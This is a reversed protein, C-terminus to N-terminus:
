ARLAVVQDVMAATALTAAPTVKDPVPRGDQLAAYIEDLMNVLGHYPTHQAVKNRFGRVGSRMMSAGSRILELPALKGGGAGGSIRLFPNFLETEASARSGRVVLSFAPPNIGPLLKLRGRVPGATVLCDLLDYGVRRNGHANKLDGIVRDVATQGSLYLWAGCMHPLFDHVAGGPLRVGDGELNLDGFPGNALDLTLAVEVERVEGLDGADVLHRLARVNENWITNASEILVRGSAAAHDFLKATEAADASMPKECIVHCGADLVTRVIDEHTGPPTLVHVIDPRATAIMTGIDDYAAAAGYHETFFRALVPSRDMAGVFEARASPSIFRAHEHAIAGCGIIATKLPVPM